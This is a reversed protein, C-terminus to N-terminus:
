QIANIGSATPPSHLVSTQLEADVDNEAETLDREDDATDLGTMSEDNSSSRDPCWTPFIPKVASFAVPGTLPYYDTILRITEAMASGKYRNRVMIECLHSEFNSTSTGNMLRFYAKTQKWAGEIRNTHVTETTSAVPDTYTVAFHHTHEVVLHRYGLDGLTSYGRWGDSYITAGPEVNEQIISCLTNTDRRDV